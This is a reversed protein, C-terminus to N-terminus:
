KEVQYGEEHKIVHLKSISGITNLIGSLSDSKNFTGTFRIKSLDRQSYSIATKYAGQLTKLIEALTQNYFTWTEATETTSGQQGPITKKATAAPHDKVASPQLAMRRSMRDFVMEEGPSLYLEDPARDALAPEPRVVVKGSILLVSARPDNDVARVRFSTGLATTAIGGAYVTFPRAPDKAVDFIAAGSLRFARAHSTFPEEYSLESHAALEITSGDPTTFTVKDAGTIKLIRTHRGIVPTRKAVERTAGKHGSSGVWFTGLILLGVICAAAASRMMWINRVPPRTSRYVNDRMQERLGAPLTDDPLATYRLGAPAMGDPLVGYEQDDKWDVPGAYEDLLEPHQELYRTVQEAEEASCENIFFREILERSPETM